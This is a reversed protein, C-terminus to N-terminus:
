PANVEREHIPEEKEKLSNGKRKSLVAKIEAVISLAIEEPTEAGLDLGVPSYINHVNTIAKGKEALENLMREMKKKPGLIGIYSVQKEALLSLLAIDYNYNHTMLVFVTQADIDIRETLEAPKAVIVEDAKPFRLTTAHSPRGDAVTVKWGLTHAIETFPIVDNGAGAIVVAISPKIFEYFVTVTNNEKEFTKVSSAQTEFAAAIGAKINEHDDNVSYLTNDRYLFCTGPQQKEDFSFATVMVANKRVSILQKLLTVPNDKGADLPEFLIHVIGNCGLQVGLQADDEDTTDYKVLRNKQQNIVLLAKKLADGELCGGSIAGTLQGDDTILMRAGPRRYSSGEVHVVTALATKKGAATAKSYAQIIERIEKM